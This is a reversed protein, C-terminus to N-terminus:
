WIEEDDYNYNWGSGEEDNGKQDNRRQDDAGQMQSQMKQEISSERQNRSEEESKSQSADTTQDSQSDGGESSSDSQEQQQSQQQSQQQQEQEQQAQNLMELIENYLTQADEDHGDGDENACDDESLVELCEELIEISEEIHEEGLWDPSLEALKCLAINVRIPCEKGEPPDLSLAKEYEEIAMEYDYLKYRINGNNFHVIYKETLNGVELLSFNESYDEENYKSIVWENYAYTFAFKFLIVAAIAYITILITKKM